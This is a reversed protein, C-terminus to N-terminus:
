AVESFGVENKQQWPALMALITRNIKPPSAGNPALLTARLQLRLGTAGAGDAVGPFAAGNSAAAWDDWTNGGDMSKRGELTLTAGTPVIESWALHSRQVTGLGSPDVVESTWRGGVGVNLNGDFALKYTTYEDVPLPGGSQYAALIEADSRAISSIRLDDILGDLWRQTGGNSGIYTTGTLVINPATTISKEAVGNVYITGGQPSWKGAIHYWIGPQLVTTGAVQLVSAGSGYQLYPKGDSGVMLILGNFGTGAIDVIAQANTGPARLPKVWCEVTGAQANVVGATPITPIEAARTGAMYSTPYSKAELQIDDWYGDSIGADSSYLWVKIYATGAPAVQTISKRTWATESFGLTYVAIRVGSSNLFDLYLVQIGTLMKAYASLTYTTGPTAAVQQSAYASSTASLDTIRLANSGSRKEASQVSAGSLEWGTSGSEFGPNTLLNVTGEEVMVAQGFQGAEYRPVGSAVQTGDSKYATSARSFSPAAPVLLGLGDEQASAAGTLTGRLWSGVDLWRYEAGLAVESLVDAVPTTTTTLTDPITVPDNFRRLLVLVENERIVFKRGAAALKRFFAQWGGLAEGDLARVQYRLFQGDVDSASVSDILFDAALNHATLNITILQGAALGPKDTEFTVVRPIRGFRRLLADAKQTALDESDINQDDEIAEYVGRVAIESDVQSSLIIPYLGQYTVSLTDSATLRTGSDDQTIEREDKSWYWDKGTDVGRIGITKSVGNVMVSTPAKGVPFALVFTRTEGDGKFTETRPDTLDQGARIYQRNRYQERTQTVTLNRCNWNSDSISWPAANSERAVFWLDKSYDINWWYGTLEALENFAEAVTQYNVVAKTITPGDQVHTTTIGEGALDQAVIDRVIAGLTQNEYVRAVLHRDAIQNYDVCSVACALASTGAPQSEEVSDITGAFVRKGGDTIIVEQGVSPRYGGTPDLLVFSCTNRSNLEDTISVSGARLLASKDVGGITLVLSM